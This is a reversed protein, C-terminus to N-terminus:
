YIMMFCERIKPDHVILMDVDILSERYLTILEAQSKEYGSESNQSNESESIITKDDLTTTTTDDLTTNTSDDLSNTANNTTDSKSDTDTVNTTLSNTDTKITENKDLSSTENINTADDVISTDKIVIGESAYLNNELDGILIETQPTDSKVNTGDNTTTTDKETLNNSTTDQNLLNEVNQIDNTNSSTTNDLKTTNNIIQSNVIEQDKQMSTEQDKIMTSDQDKITESDKQITQTSIRNFSFLPDIKLLESEYFKNYRPMIEELSRNLYFKFRDATESGIENFFYHDVIKDNLIQRHTEDFIPYDQLGLDFGSEVIDRLLATYRAM